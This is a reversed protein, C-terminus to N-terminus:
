WADTPEYKSKNRKKNPINFRSGVDLDDNGCNPCENTSDYITLGCINCIKTTM